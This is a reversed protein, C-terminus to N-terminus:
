LGLSEWIGGSFLMTLIKVAISWETGVNVETKTVKKNRHSFVIVLTVQLLFCKTPITTEHPNSDMIASHLYSPLSMKILLHLCFSFVVPIYYTMQFRFAWRWQCVEEM